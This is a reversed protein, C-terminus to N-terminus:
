EDATTPKAGPLGGVVVDPNGSDPKSAPAPAQAEFAPAKQLSRSRHAPAPPPSSKPAPLATAPPAKEVPQQSAQQAQCVGTGLFAASLGLFFFAPVKV